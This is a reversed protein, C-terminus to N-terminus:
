SMTMWRTKLFKTLYVSFVRLIEHVTMSRRTRNKWAKAGVFSFDGWVRFAQYVRVAMWCNFMTVQESSFGVRKPYTAVPWLSERQSKVVYLDTPLSILSENITILSVPKVKSIIWVWNALDHFSWHVMHCVAVENWVDTPNAAETFCVDCWGCPEPAKTNWLYSMSFSAKTTHVFCVNSHRLHSWSISYVTWFFKWNFTSHLIRSIPKTENRETIPLFVRAM